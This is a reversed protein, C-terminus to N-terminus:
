RWAGAGRLAAAEALETAQLEERAIIAARTAGRLMGRAEDERLRERMWHARARMLRERAAELERVEGRLAYEDREHQEALHQRRATAPAAFRALEQAGPGVVWAALATRLRRWEAVRAERIEVAACAEAVERRCAECHREAARTRLARLRVLQARERVPSAQSTM